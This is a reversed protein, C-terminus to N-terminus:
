CYVRPSAPWSNPQICTETLCVGAKVSGIVDASIQLQRLRRCVRRLKCRGGPECVLHRGCLGAVLLLRLVIGLGGVCVGRVALNTSNYLNIQYPASSACDMPVNRHQVQRVQETTDTDLSVGACAIMMTPQHVPLFQM